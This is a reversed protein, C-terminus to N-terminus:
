CARSNNSRTVAILLEPAQLPWLLSSCAEWWLPLLSFSGSLLQYIGSNTMVRSALLVQIARGQYSGFCIRNKRTKWSRALEPTVDSGFEFTNPVRCYPRRHNQRAPLLHDLLHDNLDLLHDNVEKSSSISDISRCDQKPNYSVMIWLYILLSHILLKHSIESLQPQNTEELTFRLPKGCCLPLGRVVSHRHYRQWAHHSCCPSLSGTLYDM